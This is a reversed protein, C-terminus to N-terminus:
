YGQALLRNLVEQATARGDAAEVVTIAGDGVNITKGGTSMGGSAMKPPTLGQAIASLWRVSPDVQGLNRRLPVVAEPGAEGITRQQAGSFIGGNATNNRGQVRNVIINVTEDPITNMDSILRAKQAYYGSLDLDSKPKAIKADLTKISRLMEAERTNFQRLDIDAKPVIKKKDVTKIKAALDAQRVTFPKTDITVEPNAEQQDLVKIRRNIREILASSPKFGAIKIITRLDRPKFNPNLKKAERVVQAIDGVSRRVGRTEVLTAVKPPLSRLKKGYGQVAANQLLIQRRQERLSGVSSGMATVLENYAIRQRRTLGDLNDGVTLVRQMADKQGTFAQVLTRASLGLNRGTGLLGQEQLHQLAMVRTAETAAGSVQDLTGRLEELANAYETTPGAIAGTVTTATKFVEILHSFPGPLGKISTKVEDAGGSLLDYAALLPSTARAANTWDFGGGSAIDGNRIEMYVDNVENFADKVSGLLNLLPFLTSTIAGVVQPYKSLWGFLTSFGDVLGILIDRTGSDDMAAVFKGAAVVLNGLSEGLERGFKLWDQAAQQGESSRLYDVLDKAASAMDRFMSDGEKRGLDFLEGVLRVVDGLFDGLASASDGAKRFFERIERRGEKKNAWDSFEQTIDRMWGLFRNILPITALFVGGLGEVINTFINGIM